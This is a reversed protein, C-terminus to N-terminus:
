AGAGGAGRAPGSRGAAVPGDGGRESPEAPRPRDFPLALEEPLGALAQRWYDVQERWCGAAGDDGDGLLERQWLAYDAYQVPLPPGTRHGASAAPRYAAALDAMLMEMSWGDSAIHHCLLVLVHEERRGLAHVALGPDAARAALDFEYGAAADILGALEPPDAAAVTVPVTLRCRRPHVHQYPEGTKPPSCRGCRSTGPSWM